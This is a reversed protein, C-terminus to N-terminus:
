SILDFHKKIFNVRSDQSEIFADSFLEGAKKLILLIKQHALILRTNRTPSVGVRSLSLGAWWPDLRPRM